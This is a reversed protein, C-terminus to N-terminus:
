LLEAEHEDDCCILTNTEYRPYRSIEDRFIKEVTGFTKQQERILNRDHNNDIEMLDAM